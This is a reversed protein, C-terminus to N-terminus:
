MMLMLMVLMMMWVVQPPRLVIEDVLASRNLVVVGGATRGDAAGKGEGGRGAGELGIGTNRILTRFCSAHCFM